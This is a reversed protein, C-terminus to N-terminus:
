APVETRVRPWSLCDACDRAREFEIRVVELEPDYRGHIATWYAEFGVASNFGERRAEADDPRGLLGLAQSVIRIHAVHHRGRGPAIAYTRGLQYTSASALKRRTVTKRGDLVLPILSEGFIVGL